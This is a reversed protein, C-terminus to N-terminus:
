KKFKSEYKESTFTSHESDISIHDDFNYNSYKMKNLVNLIRETSNVDILDDTYEGSVIIRVPPKEIVVTAKDNRASLLPSTIVCGSLLFLPLLISGIIIILLIISSFIKQKKKSV